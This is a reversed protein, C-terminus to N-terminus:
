LPCHAGILGFNLILPLTFTNWETLARIVPGLASKSLMGTGENDSLIFLGMGGILIVVSFIPFTVFAVVTWFPTLRFQKKSTM